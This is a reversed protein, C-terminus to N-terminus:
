PRLPSRFTDFRAAFFPPAFSSSEAVPFGDRLDVRLLEPPALRVEFKLRLAVRFAVAGFVLAVFVFGL